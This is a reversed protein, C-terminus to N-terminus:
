FPYVGWLFECMTEFDSHNMVVAEGNFFRTLAHYKGVKARFKKEDPAMVSLSFKVTAGCDKYAMTTQGNLNLTRIDRIEAQKAILILDTKQEPTLKSNSSM